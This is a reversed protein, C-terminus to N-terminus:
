LGAGARWGAYKTTRAEIEVLRLIEDSYSEDPGRLAALRDATRVELWFM